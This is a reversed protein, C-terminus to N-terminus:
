GHRIQWLGRHVHRRHGAGRRSHCADRLGRHCMPKLQRSRLAEGHLRLGTAPAVDTDPTTASANEAM